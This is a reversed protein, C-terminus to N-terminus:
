LENMQLHLQSPAVTHNHSQAIVVLPSTVNSLSKRAKPLKSGWEVSCRVVQQCRVFLREFSQLSLVLKERLHHGYQLHRIPRM